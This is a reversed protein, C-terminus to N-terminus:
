EKKCDRKITEIKPIYADEGLINEITDIDKCINKLLHNNFYINKDYMKIFQKLDESLSIKLKINEHNELATLHALSKYNSISVIEDLKETLSKNQVFLFITSGM